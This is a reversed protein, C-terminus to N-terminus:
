SLRRMAAYFLCSGGDHVHFVTSSCDTCFPLSGMWDHSSMYLVYPFEAYCTGVTWRHTVSDYDSGGQDYIVIVSTYPVTVCELQAM